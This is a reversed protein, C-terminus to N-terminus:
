DLSPHVYPSPKARLEPCWERPHVLATAQARPRLQTTEPKAPSPQTPGGEETGRMSGVMIAAAKPDANRGDMKEAARSSDWSWGKTWPPQERQKRSQSRLGLPSDQKLSFSLCDLPAKWGCPLPAQGSFFWGSTGREQRQFNESLLVKPTSPTPFPAGQPPNHLHPRGASCYGEYHFAATKEWLGGVRVSPQQTLAHTQPSSKKGM